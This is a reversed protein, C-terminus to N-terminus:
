LITCLDLHDRNGCTTPLGFALQFLRIEYDTMLCSMVPSEIVVGVKRRRDRSKIKMASKLDRDGVQPQLGSRPDHGSKRGRDTIWSDHYGIYVM